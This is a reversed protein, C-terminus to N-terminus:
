NNNNTKQKKTKKFLISCFWAVTKVMVWCPQEVM